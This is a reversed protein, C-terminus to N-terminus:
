APLFERVKGSIQKLDFPKSIFANAGCCKAIMKIDKEASVLIVPVERTDPKSKLMTCITAGSKNPNGLRLDLLILDPLISDIHETEEGDSSLIVEYGEAKFILSLIELIDPDDDIILLRKAM